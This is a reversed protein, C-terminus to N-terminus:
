AFDEPNKVMIYDITDELLGAIQRINPVVKYNVGPTYSLMQQCLQNETDDHM